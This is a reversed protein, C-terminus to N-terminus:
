FKAENLDNTHSPDDGTVIVPYDPKLLNSLGRGPIVRCRCISVDPQRFEDSIYALYEDDNEM